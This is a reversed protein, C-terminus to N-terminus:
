LNVIRVREGDVVQSEDAEANSSSEGSRGGTPGAPPVGPPYASHGHTSGDVVSSGALAGVVSRAVVGDAVEEEEGWEGLPSGQRPTETLYTSIGAERHHSGEGRRPTPDMCEEEEDSPCFPVGIVMSSVARAPANPHTLPEGEVGADGDLGVHILTNVELSYLEAAVPAPGTGGSMVHDVHHQPDPLLSLVRMVRRPLVKTEKGFPNAKCLPCYPSRLLWEDICDKHFRHLCPLMRLSDGGEFCDLCVSCTADDKTLSGEKFAFSFLKAMRAQIRTRIGEDMGAVFQTAARDNGRELEVLIQGERGRRQIGPGTFNQRLLSPAYGLFHWFAGCSGGCLFYGSVCVVASSMSALVIVVGWLVSANAGQRKRQNDTPEPKPKDEIYIRYTNSVGTMRQVPCACEVRSRCPGTQTAAEVADVGLPYWAGEAAGPLAAGHWIWCKLVQDSRLGPFTPLLPFVLHPLAQEQYKHTSATTPDWMRLGGGHYFRFGAVRTAAQYGGLLPKDAWPDTKFDTLMVDGFSHTYLGLPDAFASFPGRDFVKDTITLRLAAPPTTTISDGGPPAAQMPQCSFSQKNKGDNALLRDFRHIGVDFLAPTLYVTEGPIRGAMIRQGVLGSAKSAEEMFSLPMVPAGPPDRPALSLGSETGSRREFGSEDFGEESSAPIESSSAAWVVRSNGPAVTDMVAISPLGHWIEFSNRRGNQRATPTITEAPTSLSSLAVMASKAAETTLSAVANLNGRISQLVADRKTINLSLSSLAVESAASLATQRGSETQVAKDAAQLAEVLKSQAGITGFPDFSSAVGDSSMSAAGTSVAGFVEGYSDFRAAEALITELRSTLKSAQGFVPPPAVDVIRRVRTTANLADVVDLIVQLKHAPSTANRIGQPLRLGQLLPTPLPGSIPKGRECPAEGLCYSFYYSLPAQADVWGGATLTFDTELGVGAAPAVTFTGGAPPENVGLEVRSRGELDNSDWAQVEFALQTVGRPILGAPVVLNQEYDTPLKLGVLTETWKWRTVSCDKECHATAIARLRVASSAEIM